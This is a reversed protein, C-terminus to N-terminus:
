DPPSSGRSRLSRSAAGRHRLILRSLNFLLLSEAAILALVAGNGELRPILAFFGVGAVLLAPAICRAIQKQLHLATAAERLLLSCTHIVFLLAFLQLTGASSYFARGAVVIVIMEASSALVLALATGGLLFMSISQQLTRSFRAADAVAAHALLPAVLGIVLLGIGMLSDFIKLPVGYNGVAEPTSLVALLITPSQFYVITM